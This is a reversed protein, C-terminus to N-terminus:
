KTVPVRAKLEEVWNLVVNIQQGPTRAPESPGTAAPLVVLLRKGDPTIDFNRQAIPHVTGQIGLQVPKGVTFTPATRVDVVVLRNSSPEHFFLQRGDPSWLPTRGGSATVQYKAATHPFPQVFVEQNSNALTTNAMYAIWRGDPSFVSHKEVITPVDAFMQPTAGGDFATTWVGQNGRSVMNMSLVKGDPSWSEPEHAESDGAKTLREAPSSGDALQRYVAKDGERDSQFTIYRGDRTWIPYVNRGGFTLRRPSGGATFDYVWINADKSDEVVFVLQHGDPSVRPHVYLQPPLGLSESRGDRDVFTLLRPGTVGGLGAPAYALTGSESIVAHAVGSM